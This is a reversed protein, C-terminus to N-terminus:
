FTAAIAVNFNRTRPIAFDDVGMSGTGGRTVSANNTPDSGTYRTLMFLNSGTLTLRLSSLQSTNLHKAFDYGLSVFNLRIFSGDEVFNSSVANFYNSIVQHDLTIPTTNPTYSGDEQRVVGDVVVQRGRYHELWRSNGAGMLGRATLNIVDGGLRGDFLFSLNVGKYNFTNVLGASFLPERNGIFKRSAPDIRPLGESDVLIQGAANRLYDRGLIGMTTEGLPASTFMDTYQDGAVDTVDEPLSRVRGRNLGFNFDTTWRFDRNTIIDQGLTVEIGQNQVAGENRTQLIHGSAPSVRVTLIQNDTTVSYYALDLRTRNNFFRLDFGVEWSHSFEPALNRDASSFIPAIGWGGDPFNVFQMNRRDFLFNMEPSKGVMAYNGRFRGFNFFDSSIGLLESFTLGATVSPYFYPNTLITSSWDWRGTVELSALGRMYEGRISGFHGFLNRHSRSATRDSALMLAPNTNTLSFTGPIIFDRGANAQSFGRRMQMDSGAMLEVNFDRPLEITYMAMANAILMQSRGASTNFSGFVSGIDSPAIAARDTTSLHFPDTDYREFMGPFALVWAAHDQEWQAVARHYNMWAERLDAGMDPHEAFPPKTPEVPPRLEHLMTRDWRPVVYSWSNNNTVDYSIRGIIELNRIPTWNASANIINRLVITQADDMMRGFMPSVPSGVKNIDNLHRRRPFNTGPTRYDMIDDNIPWYYMGQTNGGGRSRREVTNTGVSISLTEFPRFTTRTTVGTSNRYENPIIGEHRQHNASAFAQFRETGGSLSFNYRQLLGAQLFNGVNDFIQEGERLPPGWGGGSREAHFGRSGPAYTSQLRELRVAQQWELSVNATATLRGAQGQRTTIMIVGNAALQGYLASAAAGKLITVSEIDNPNIDFAESGRGAIPMGDLVFLPENNQSPNISSVGRILVQAGANPSGSAQTVNLGAVRGQLANVFNAQQGEVLADSSVSQVSFNLRTRERAVGMASIVVEGLVQADSQLTVNLVNTSATVRHDQPSMGMFSFTLTANEPVSISYRGDFDTITGTTTGRVIIQVGPLIDGTDDRVVGTITQQAVVLAPLVFLFLLICAKKM